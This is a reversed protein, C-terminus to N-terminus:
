DTTGNIVSRIHTIQTNSLNYLSFIYKDIDNEADANGSLVDNVLLTVADNDSSSIDPFPLELLNGKLIKIEGFLTNYLYQFLSSNLFAMVTKINMNPINPILINASNLFLSASDDYAFVLKDSIFKYVLKEPARYIEDKAVQQLQNRNYVIYKNASKLIYKRIEKGTYIKEANVAPQSLLKNKNDGTVIGLAWTSNKLTYKGKEKVTHVISIDDDSLFNFILNDTEYISPVSVSLTKKDSCLTFYEAKPANACEIDIYNTTVGSFVSDYRNISIIKTEELIYRRIDKHTKVNLISEPFLFRIIGNGKLQEAAKVFFLSFTEGSTIQGNLPIDKKLAGWPPNTAIYDFKKHTIAINDDSSLYDLYYIQPIFERDSYKLLLNIKAAMVATKDNDAGYIQLPDNAPVALLFSGSGCCPDLFIKNDSFCFSETMNQAITSPTYYSGAMNKQGEQQYSQYILGLIDYEDDPIAATELEPIVPIDSYDALVALVHAKDCIGARKLLNIGLSLISSAISLKQTDIIDLIKHVYTVNDKNSFYEYPLIRKQSKRKNARTTLRKSFDTNLKKWNKMTADSIGYIEDSFQIIDDFSCNLVTAIRALSDLAIPENKSMKALTSANINAIQSMEKRTINKDSLQKWLREYSYLM